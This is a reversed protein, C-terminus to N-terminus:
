KGQFLYNGKIYDYKEYDVQITNQRDFGDTGEGGGGYSTSECQSIYSRGTRNRVTARQCTLQMSALVM